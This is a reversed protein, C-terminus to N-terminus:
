RYAHVRWLGHEDYKFYFKFAPFPHTTGLWVFKNPRLDITPRFVDRRRERVTSNVGDAGVVLDADTLEAPDEVESEFRLQAGLAAAREALIELLARRELGSFGHGTSSLVEGKYHVDIDDWHYFAREIASFTEPDAAALNEITADSFVVGFGYTDDPRNREHVIVQHSPDAKKLLIALYLGAPGGGVIAVKM